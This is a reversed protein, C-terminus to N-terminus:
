VILRPGVAELITGSLMGDFARFESGSEEVIIVPHGTFAAHQSAGM